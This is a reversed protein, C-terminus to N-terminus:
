SRLNKCKTCIGDKTWYSNHCNPCLDNYHQKWGQPIPKPQWKDDSTHPPLLIYKNKGPENRNLKPKPINYGDKRLLSFIKRYEASLETKLIQGLLLTNGNDAFMKLMLQKQRESM